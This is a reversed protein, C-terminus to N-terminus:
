AVIFVVIRNRNFPDVCRCTRTSKKCWGRMRLSALSRLSVFKSSSPVIVVSERIRSNETRFSPGRSSDFSAEAESLSVHLSIHSSFCFFFCSFAFSHRKMGAQDESIM